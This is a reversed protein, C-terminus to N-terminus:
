GCADGHYPGPSDADVLRYCDQRVLGFDRLNFAVAELFVIM